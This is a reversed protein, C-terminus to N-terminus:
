ACHDHTVVLRMVVCFLSMGDLISELQVNQGFKEQVEQRVAQPLPLHKAEEIGPSHNTHTRMYRLSVKGNCKDETVTMRSICYDHLKRSGRLRRSQTTKKPQQNQKAKGDRCCTYLM